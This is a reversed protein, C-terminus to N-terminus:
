RRVQAQRVDSTQQVALLRTELDDRVEQLSAACAHQAEGCNTHV